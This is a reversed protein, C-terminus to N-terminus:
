KNILWGLKVALDIQQCVYVWLKPALEELYKNRLLVQSKSVKHKVWTGGENNMNQILPLICDIAKAFKADSTETNEFELWLEKYAQYQKESLLGFIRKAASLEKEQQKDLATVDAFAFLDGADIEVIDHILLM